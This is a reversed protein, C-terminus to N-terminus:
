KESFAGPFRFTDASARAGIKPTRDLPHLASGAVIEVMLKRINFGNAAFSSRLEALELPGYARIPQKVISHFLQEIFASHTEESSALLGALERAGAYKTVEGSPAEYSGTADIPRGKEEKRFRGVADFQEMGFGLPNIMGHCSMCVTPKTQLAVRERTTLGAHLDPALPAVAEPPPRLSRGLVSRSVFVGRHIPSTTATYAFTAMLYPHSLVGARAKPEHALKKFPADAPLDAGYFKALRGNLYLSDATLIQRFDSSDSWIVDELFLDLSTRLDAVIGKDFSAFLKPDKSLDPAQEVRLWQFFFERLKAHTRLDPLMREAQRAVQARTKLRGAKAEELLTADPLSDWLGFAIRSAVDYGDPKGEDVERYLFRPSNLILLVARKVSVELPRGEAFHRDVYRTKQEDTLPRRFAREAFRVLFERLKVKRDAGTESAGTLDRVHAAIYAAVELSADTTAQDWAKSISTGREYGVSRDDPPLATELVFTEPFTVPSLSRTPILEVVRQPPKWELAISGPEVPAKAKKDKSDEVGDKGKFYELRIPYPRGGLLRITGRYETDKGSKVSADILPRKNDNVWLRASNETRVIFEYDGTEPALVSGRWRMSFEKPDIKPDPSSKKFDFRVEPDIREIVRSDDRFRKTKFYEAKLGRQNDWTAAPRFTLLLDSLANRYQRVTLRSLEIRPPKNRAQAVKSYFADYIYASVKDADEGVCTGPDDSPMTKAIFRSLQPISRAGALPRPFEEPTGEGAPGHCSACKQRYIVEGTPGEAHVLPAAFVVGLIALTRRFGPRTRQRIPM